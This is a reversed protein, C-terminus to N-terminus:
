YGKSELDVEFDIHEVRLVETELTGDSFLRVRRYGPALEDLAFSQSLPKFQICTSPSALLRVGNFHGDYVQHIHGWLILRVCAHREIVGLLAKGNRLGIADLWVSGVPVPNHHLAIVVHKDAHAFLEKELWEFESQGLYGHVKGPVSSNLFIFHWNKLTLSRQLLGHAEAVRQMPGSRDHNGMFWVVPCKFRETRLHLAMYAAESGDQALDGTMLVIDPTENERQLLELVADLSDLTNMGLLSGEPEARLHCDTIQVVNLVPERSTV